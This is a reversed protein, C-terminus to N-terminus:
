SVGGCLFDEVIGVVLDPYEYNPCHGCDPVVHLSADPLAECLREAEHPRVSPDHDGQIVLVPVRVAALEPYLDLDRLMRTTGQLARKSLLSAQMVAGELFDPPLKGPHRVSSKIMRATIYPGWLPYILGLLCALGPIRAQWMLAKISGPTDILALKDVGQPYRAAYHICISGGMSHGALNVRPVDLALRLGEIFGAFGDLTFLFGDPIDSDAHGPLDPVIVRFRESLWPTMLNWLAGSGMWGHVLVLAEGRGQDAYSIRAGGMSLSPM